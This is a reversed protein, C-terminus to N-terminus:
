NKFTQRLFRQLAAWSKHDASANYAMPLNFKQANVDADPNTFSHGAGPFSIFNLDAGAARMEKKFADVQDPTVMKDDAGHCVLIKARLRGKEAPQVAFLSGHFSAVGKLDEGVRAMNLVVAGGFCYGIAAVRAPDVTPHKKVFDLAADFRARSEPFDKFAAQAFAGAEQPHAAEKGDGYMDVALATYGLDALMDARKRAYANLGWWEHVVLVAPRKDTIGTQYSLYGKLTTTGAQYSVNEGVIDARLAFPSLLLFATLLFRRM